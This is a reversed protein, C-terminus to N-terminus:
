FISPTPLVFPITTSLVKTPQELLHMYHYKHWGDPGWTGPLPIVLSIRRARSSGESVMMVPATTHIRINRIGVEAVM